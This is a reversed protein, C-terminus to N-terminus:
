QRGLGLAEVFRERGPPGRRTSMTKAAAIFEPLTKGSKEFLEAIFDDESFYLRFLDLYANNVPLASFGRFNDTIFKNDYEAAFREQAAAIIREKERLIEDTNASSNYLVDLEAALELVFAVFRRNDEKGDVMTRYEASDVGFRSEMFLRAGETGVFQALEENFGAQGRLFVTAHLSEHIILDALRYVPFDKMFSFLPDAFWGLTSFASVGRVWVDLGRRELRERERHAHEINFFGRYPLRGVIPYRWYHRTFSDAASASVVAAIFNRDLSVYRTYNRGVNLGLYESAFRRIDHVLKVFQRNREAEETDAGGNELLSELPRARCLYGLFAFGQRFTYCGSFLVCVALSLAVASFINRKKTIKM